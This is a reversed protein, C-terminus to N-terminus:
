SFQDELLFNQAPTDFRCEVHASSDEASLQSKCIIHKRYKNRVERLFIKDPNDFTGELDGGFCRSSLFTEQINKNYLFMRIKLLFHSLVPCFKRYTRCFSRKVQGSSWKSINIMIILSNQIEFSFFISRKALMKRCDNFRCKVNRLINEAPSSNESFLEIKRISIPKRASFIRPKDFSCKKQVFSYRSSVQTEGFLKDSNKKSRDRFKKMVNTSVAKLVVCFFKLM